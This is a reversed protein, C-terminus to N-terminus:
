QMYMPCSLLSSGLKSITIVTKKELLTFFTMQLILYYDPLFIYKIYM